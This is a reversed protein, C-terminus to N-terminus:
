HCFRIMQALNEASVVKPGCAAAVDLAQWDVRRHQLDSAAARIADKRRLGRGADAHAHAPLHPQLAALVTQIWWDGFRPAPMWRCSRHLADFIKVGILCDHSIRKVDLLRRSARFGIERLDGASCLRCTIRRGFILQVRDARGVGLNERIIEDFLIGGSVPHDSVQTLAHM